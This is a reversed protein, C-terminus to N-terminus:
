TSTQWWRPAPDLNVQPPNRFPALLADLREANRVALVRSGDYAGILLLSVEMLKAERVESVGDAARRTILPIFGVSLAPLYGDRADALVRDGDDGHRVGFVGMLASHDDEWHKSMGYARSHDHNLCLPIRNGREAISKRFCGRLLREGRPDPVLYSTENWVQVQGVIERADMSVSRLEMALQPTDSM